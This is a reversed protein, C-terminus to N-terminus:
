KLLEEKTDVKYKQIQGQTEDRFLNTVTSTEDLKWLWTYQFQWITEMNHTKRKKTTNPSIKTTKITELNNQIHRM